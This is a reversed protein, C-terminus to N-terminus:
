FERELKAYRALLRKEGVEDFKVTVKLDRGFGTVGQVTGSGFTAHSV